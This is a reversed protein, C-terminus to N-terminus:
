RAVYKGNGPAPIAGPLTEAMKATLEISALQTELQERVSGRHKEVNGTFAHLNDWYKEPMSINVKGSFTQRAASVLGDALRVAIDEALADALKLALDKVADPQKQLILLHRLVPIRANSLLSASSDDLSSSTGLIFGVVGGAPNEIDTPDLTTKAVGFLAKNVWAKTGQFGSKVKIKSVQQCSFENSVDSSICGVIEDDDTPEVLMRVSVGNGPITVLTNLCVQTAGGWYGALGGGCDGTEAMDKTQVVRSGGINMLLQAVFNSDAPTNIGIKDMSNTRVMARWTLNGVNPNDPDSNIQGFDVKKFGDLIGGLADGAKGRLGDFLKGTESEKSTIDAGNKVDKALSEGIRCSNKFMMNMDQIKQAFESMTSGLQSSIHNIAMKFLAAVAGQAISRFVSVLEQTNIFSFSGGSMDIGGCGASIRPPDFSVLNVPRNPIRLTATGGVAGFRTQSKYVGPNTVQTFMGDLMSDMSAYTAEPFMVLSVSLIWSASALAALQRKSFRGPFVTHQNQHPM